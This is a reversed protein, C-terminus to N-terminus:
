KTWVHVWNHVGSHVLEQAKGEELPLHVNTWLFHLIIQKNILYVSSYATTNTKSLRIRSMWYKTTSNTTTNRSVSWIFQIYIDSIPLLVWICNGTRNNSLLCVFNSTIKCKTQRGILLVAVIWCQTQLLEQLIVLLLGELCRRKSFIRLLWM